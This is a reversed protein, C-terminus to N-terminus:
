RRDIEELEHLSQESQRGNNIAEDLWTMLQQLGKAKIQLEKVSQERWAPMSLMEHQIEELEAKARGTIYRGVNSSLFTEVEVGLKAEAFLFDMQRDIENM